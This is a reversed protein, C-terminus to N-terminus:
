RLLSMVNQPSSNAQSLMAMGAQQLVQARSMNATESAFDTDMIRGRASAQNEVSVQLNSIVSDFRNQAAGFGSRATNVAALATDINDMATRATTADAGLTAAAGQTNTGMATAIDSTEITIQNDASTNAGVQFTFDGATGGTGTLLSQGNFKTNDIV